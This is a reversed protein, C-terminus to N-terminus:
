SNRRKRRTAGIALVLGSGLLWVAGPLPAPTSVVLSAKDFKLTNDVGDTVERLIFWWDGTNGYLPDLIKSKSLVFGNSAWGSVSEDLLHNPDAKIPYTKDALADYFWLGWREVAPDNANLKHRVVLKIKHGYPANFGGADFASKGFTFDGDNESILIVEDPDYTFIDASAPAGAFWITIWLLSGAVWKFSRMAKEKKGQEDSSGASM